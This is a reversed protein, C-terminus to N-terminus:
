FIIGIEGIIYTGYNDKNMQLHRHNRDDNSYLADIIFKLVFSLDVTTNSYIYLKHLIIYGIIRTYDYNNQLKSWNETCAKKM